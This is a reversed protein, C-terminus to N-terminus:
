RGYHGSEKLLSEWFQYTPEALECTSFRQMRDQKFIFSGATTISRPDRFEHATGAVSTISRDMMGDFDVDWMLHTFPHSGAVVFDARGDHNRDYSVTDGRQCEEFIGDGDRDFHTALLGHGVRGLAQKPQAAPQGGPKAPPAPPRALTAGGALLGAYVLTRIIARKAKM